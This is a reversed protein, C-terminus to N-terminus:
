PIIKTEPLRSLLEVIRRPGAKPHKQLIAAAQGTVHAAAFSNGRFNSQLPMGPLPRPWGHAGFQVPKDPHHFLAGPACEPHHYVGVVNSFSAPYVRDEPSRASAVVVANKAYARECAEELRERFEDQAVGLSLHIIRAEIELARELATLLSSVSAALRDHFIKIACLRASPAYLRVVGAIATGHGIVDECGPKVLIEGDEDLVITEGSEIGGVHPHSGNVGSDIIAVRVGM